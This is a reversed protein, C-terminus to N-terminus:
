PLEKIAINRFRYGADPKWNGGGIGAQAIDPQYTSGWHLQLGIAGETEGAIKDNKPEQVDWMQVGNVWLTIHPVDGEMRVRFSNWDDVKWVKPLDTAQAPKSVRMLEGLLNANNTAQDLEVQYASGGETSRLFLGSNCGWVEKVEVYFEFNHYKKDTLLLGGQGYPRQKLVLEGNEVYANGTTGHHVTKSFHWGTTDKGNFIPTFGEPIGTTQPIAAVACFHIAAMTYLAWKVMQTVTPKADM